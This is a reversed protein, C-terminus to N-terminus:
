RQGAPQAQQQQQAMREQMVRTLHPVQGIMRQITMLQARHHMEHEKPSLLMEFRSKSGGGARPSMNVRESLDAESLGELFSAFKEGDSKLLEVLEAKTRPKAEDAILPGFVEQFNVTQMDTIKRSHVYHYFQPALAVHALTQAVSRADPAPKFDFKNEPIEEAIQVTNKRVTRFAEALEKGGYYTM